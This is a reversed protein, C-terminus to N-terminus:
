LTLIDELQVLDSRDLVKYTQPDLGMSALLNNFAQRTVFTIFFGEAKESTLKQIKDLDKKQSVIDGVSGGCKSQICHGRKDSCGGADISGSMWSDIQVQIEIGSNPHIKKCICYAFVEGVAGRLHNIDSALNSYIGDLQRLIQEARLDAPYFRRFSRLQDLDRFKTHGRRRFCNTAISGSIISLLRFVDYRYEKGQKDTLLKCLDEVQEQYHERPNPTIQHIIFVM